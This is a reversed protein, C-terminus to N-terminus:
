ASYTLGLDKYITYLYGGTKNKTLLEVFTEMASDVGSKAIGANLYDDIYDAVQGDLYTKYDDLTAIESNLLASDFGAEDLSTYLESNTLVANFLDTKAADVADQIDLYADIITCYYAIADELYLEPAYDKVDSSSNTDYFIIDALSTSTATTALEANKLNYGLITTMAELTADYDGDNANDVYTANFGYSDIIEIFTDWRAIILEAAAVNDDHDDISDAQFDLIDAYEAELTALASVLKDILTQTLVNTDVANLAYLFTGETTADGLADTYSKLIGAFVDDVVYDTDDGFVAVDADGSSDISFTIITQVTSGYDATFEYNVDDTNTGVAATKEALALLVFLLDSDYGDENEENDLALLYNALAELAATKNTGTAATMYATVLDIADELLEAREANYQDIDIQDADVHIEEVLYSYSSAIGTTILDFEALTKQVDTLAQYATILEASYYSTSADEYNTDATTNSGEVIYDISAIRRVVNAKAVDEATVIYRTGNSVTLYYNDLVIDDPNVVNDDKDYITITLEYEGSETCDTTAINVATTYKASAFAKEVEDEGSSVSWAGANITSNPFAIATSVVFFDSATALKYEAKDITYTKTVTYSEEIEGPVYLGYATDEDHYVEVEYTVTYIGASTFKVDGTSKDIDNTSSVSIKDGEFNVASVSIKSFTIDYVGAYVSDADWTVSITQAAADYEDGEGEFTLGYAALAAEDGDVVDEVDADPTETVVPATTPATTPTTTPATTPAVTPDVSEQGCAAMTLVMAIVLIVVLTSRLVRNKM